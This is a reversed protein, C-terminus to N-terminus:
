PTVTFPSGSDSPLLEIVPTTGGDGSRIIRPIYSVNVVSRPTGDAHVSVVRRGQSDYRTETGAPTKRTWGAPRGAADYHYTDCWNKFASLAPDEYCDGGAPVTYDISRIRGADDYTRRENGLYRFSVFAPASCTGDKRKAVCAFDVRRMRIGDKEYPAHWEASLTVLSGNPTLNRIETKEPDGNVVFWVYTVGPESAAADLTIKRTQASGRIIRTVCTPTDAIAESTVADFYDIGTRPMTELRVRIQLAPPLSDPTLRNAARLLAEADIQAPTFATPHAAASTYDPAGKLHSRLLMQMTPVLKGSNFLEQRTEPQLVAIAALILEVLDRQATKADASGAGATSLIVAPNQTFLLDGKFEKRLDPTADYVYLQNTASFTFATRMAAPDTSIGRPITRWLASNGLSLTSHGVTPIAALGSTFLGNATGRHTGASQAEDSYLVPTLGPFAAYDAVSLDEDRNVYLVGACSAQNRTLDNVIDAYPGSYAPLESAAQLRFLTELFGGSVPDWNWQTNGAAVEAESGMTVPSALARSLTANEPPNLALEKARQLLTAFAAAYAPAHRIVALDPDESLQKLNTFGLEVAKELWTMAENLRNDKACICAVNYHWNADRPFLKAGARAATEAALLNKQQAATLFQQLYRKHQPFLRPMDFVGQGAAVGALAAMLLFLGAKSM